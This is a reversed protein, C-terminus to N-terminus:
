PGHENHHKIRPLGRADLLLNIGDIFLRQASTHEAAALAKIRLEDDFQVKVCNKVIDPRGRPPPPDVEPSPQRLFETLTPKAMAAGKDMGM